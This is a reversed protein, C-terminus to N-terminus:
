PDPNSIPTGVKPEGYEKPNFRVVVETPKGSRRNMSGETPTVSFEIPTDATFRCRTLTLTLTLTLTQAHRRHLPM